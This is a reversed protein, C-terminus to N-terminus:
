RPPSPLLKMGELLAPHSLVQGKPTDWTTFLHGLMRPDDQRRSYDILALAADTKKWSAPLVRFGKALFMPVSPYADREEYHWPCIIIDKPIRDVAAATGNLASEWEGFDLGKGDFLRDGWMLMELRREVVLHRHLDNV